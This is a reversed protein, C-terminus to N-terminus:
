FKGRSSSRSHGGSTRGIGGSGGGGRSSSQKPRRKKTVTTRLYRDRRQLIKTREDDRYTASTTTVKTRANRALAGVIVAALILAIILQVSTKFFPNEPNVGPRYAMYDSSTEIFTEFAKFYNGNSLDPTVKARIQRLREPSLRDELYYGSLVVDRKTEGIDIGIMATEGHSKQYGFGEEDYFDDMYLQLDKEENKVTVIIFDTERRESYDRAIQELQSIEQDSLVEADDYIRQKDAAGVPEVNTFFFTVTMFFFLIAILKAVRSIVM